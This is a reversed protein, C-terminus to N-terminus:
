AIGGLSDAADLRKAITALEAASARRLVEQAVIDEIMAQTAAPGGARVMEAITREALAALRQFTLPSGDAAQPKIKTTDTM